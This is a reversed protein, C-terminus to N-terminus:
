ALCVAPEGFEALSRAIRQGLRCARAPDTVLPHLSLVDAIDGAQPERPLDLVAREYRAIKRFLAAPGPPLAPQPIPTVTAGQVLCPLEVAIDPEVGTVNLVLERKDHGLLVHLMPVVAEDYWDMRREALLSTVAEPDPAGDLHYAAELRAAWAELEAGRPCCRALQARLEREPHYLLRLYPLPLARERRCIPPEVQLLSETDLAAIVQDTRDIGEADRFDYLWSWHNSGLHARRLPGAGLRSEAARRVAAWVTTPLECLGLVARGTHRTAHAVNLSLPSSLQLFTAAPALRAWAEAICEIVPRGRLFNCLGSPGLGEDGPLGEAVALMEDAARARMGGPRVQCIVVDVGTLATELRGALRLRVPAGSDTGAGAIATAAYDILREGRALARGHLRLELAPLLGAQWAKALARILCPTGVSTGGLVAIVARESGLAPSGRHGRGEGAHVHQDLGTALPGAEM